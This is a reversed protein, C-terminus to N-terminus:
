SVLEAPCLRRVPEQAESAVDYINLCVDSRTKDLAVALWNQSSLAVSNCKRQQKTKFTLPQETRPRENSLDVVSANGSVHGLAVLSEQVPSGAFAGFPPLKRRSSIPQFSLPGPKLESNVENLTLSSEAVDVLLFRRREATSHPSWRVAAEM